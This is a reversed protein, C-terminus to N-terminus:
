NYVFDNSISFDHKAANDNCHSWMLATADWIVTRKVNLEVAHGPQQSCFLYWFVKISPSIMQLVHISIANQIMTIVTVGFSRWSIEFGWGGAQKNLPMDQNFGKFCRCEIMLVSITDQLLAMVTVHTVNPVGHAGHHGLDGDAQCNAWSKEFWRGISKNNLM